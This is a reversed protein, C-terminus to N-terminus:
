LTIAASRIYIVILRATEDGSLPSFKSINKIIKEFADCVADEADADSHLIARAVRFMRARYTKYLTECLKREDPDVLTAFILM